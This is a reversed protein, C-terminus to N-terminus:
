SKSHKSLTKRIAASFTPNDIPKTLHEFKRLNTPMDFKSDYGTAFIIPIGLEVIQDALHYSTSNGLNIDLIALTYNPNAELLELGSEVSPVSEVNECGLKRLTREMELALIMNDDVVLVRKLVHSLEGAGAPPLETKANSPRADLVRVTDSPLWLRVILGDDGFTMNAEGKCEFPVAREILTLGFGRRSPKELKGIDTEIWELALGGSEM